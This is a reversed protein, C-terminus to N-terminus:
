RRLLTVDCLMYKVPASGPNDHPPPPRLLNHSRVCKVLAFCSTGKSRPGPLELTESAKQHRTKLCGSVFHSLFMTWWFKPPPPAGTAGGEPGAVAKPKNSPRFRVKPERAPSVSCADMNENSAAAVVVIGSDVAHAVADDLSQSAGYAFSMSMVAPHQANMTVNDIGTM